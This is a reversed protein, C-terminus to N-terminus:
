DIAMKLEAGKTKFLEVVKPNARITEPQGKWYEELGELTKIEQLAVKAIQFASASTLKGGPNEDEFQEDELSAENGDDDEEPGSSLGFLAQITQRKAYTLASGVGQANQKDLILEYYSSIYEGSKEHFLLTVLGVGTPFQMIGLGYKQCVPNVKKLLNDLTIYDSKFHPNQKDPEISSKLVRKAEFWASFVEKGTGIIRFNEM